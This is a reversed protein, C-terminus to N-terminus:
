DPCVHYHSISRIRLLPFVPLRCESLIDRDWRNWPEHNFAEGTLYRSYEYSRKTPEDWPTDIGLREATNNPSPSVSWESGALMTYLIVGSGWVDVPEAEYPADRMLQTRLILVRGNGLCLRSPAWFLEPSAWDSFLRVEPALYPMSGCRESLMRTRGSDKVKYVACLGFDSIKLM